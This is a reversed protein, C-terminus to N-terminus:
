SSCLAVSARSRVVGLENEVVECCVEAVGDPPHELCEEWRKGFELSSLNHHQVILMIEQKELAM